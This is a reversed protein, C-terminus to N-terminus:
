RNLRIYVRGGDSGIVPEGTLKSTDITFTNGYRPDITAIALQTTANSGDGGSLVAANVGYQNQAYNALISTWEVNYVWIILFRLEEM